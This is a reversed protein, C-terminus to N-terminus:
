VPCITENGNLYANHLYNLSQVVVRFHMIHTSVDEIDVLPGRRPKKLVRAPQTVQLYTLGPVQAHSRSQHYSHCVSVDSIHRPSARKCDNCFLQVYTHTDPSAPRCSVSHALRRWLQALSCYCDRKWRLRTMHFSDKKCRTM